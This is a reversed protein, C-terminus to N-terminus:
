ERWAVTFIPHLRLPERSDQQRWLKKDLEIGVLQVRSDAVSNFMDAPHGPAPPLGAFPPASQVSDGFLYRVAISNSPSLKFDFKTGFSDLTATTPTSTIFTGSDTVPFYNLLAQGVPDITRGHATIDAIASAVDSTSPVGKSSVSSSKYRQGEYYLFVFAKDKVIPGGITGNM